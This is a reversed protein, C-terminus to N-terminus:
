HKPQQVERNDTNENTEKLEVNPLAIIYKTNSGYMRCVEAKIGDKELIHLAVLISRPLNLM